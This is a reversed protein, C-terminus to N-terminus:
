ECAGTRPPFGKRGLASLYPAPFGDAWIYEFVPYIKPPASPGVSPQTQKPKAAAVAVTVGSGITWPKVWPPPNQVLDQWVSIYPIQDPHGGIEQFIIRKVTLVLSLNFTGEPPWGVKFDPWESSCFTQWPGKKVDVSLNHARTRVETWHDLTLTLPTTVKQGMDLEVVCEVCM